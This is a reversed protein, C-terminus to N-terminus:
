EKMMKGVEMTKENQLTVFYVGRPLSSIDIQTENDRLQREIVKEGNVNFISLQTIEALNPSSITINDNSPNPIITIGNGSKIEKVLTQCHLEVEEPSNCGPANDHIEITGNPAALYDCISQVDCESLNVNFLIYLTDISNAEINELGTLNSLASNNWVFLYGGISTLSQLGILSNLANNMSIQLHGSISTLNELGTLNYLSESYINLYGGVSNLNELGALSTLADNWGIELWGGISTLNELGTLNILADNLAIYLYDGISTLNDLGTLNILSSNNNDLIIFYGGISDLNELGTFCTLADNQDIHLNGEITNLNELGTLSTLANNNVIFLNGGISNLNDLGTLSTLSQIGSINLDGYIANLISLGTLNTINYGNIWVDGEIETCGPYNSQFNDIEEQTFFSIGEPLCPQSYVIFCSIAAAIVTLIIKKMTRTNQQYQIEDALLLVFIV